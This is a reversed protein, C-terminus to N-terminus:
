TSVAVWLRHTEDIRYSPCNDDRRNVDHIVGDRWLTTGSSMLGFPTMM